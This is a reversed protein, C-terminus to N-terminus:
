HADHCGDGIWLASTIRAADVWYRNGCTTMIPEGTFPEPLQPDFWQRGVKLVVHGLRKGWSVRVICTHPLPRGRVNVFRDGCRVGRSKLARVLRKHPTGGKPTPRLEAILAAIPENTLMAVVAPVCTYGNPQRVHAIM